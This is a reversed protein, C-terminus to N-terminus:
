GEVWLSAFFTEDHPDDPDEPFITLGLRLRQGKSPTPGRFTRSPSHILVDYAGPVLLPTEPEVKEIKMHVAFKADAGVMLVTAGPQKDTIVVDVRVEVPEPSSRDASAEDGGLGELPDPQAVPVPPEPPAPTSVEPEARAVPEQPPPAESRRTCALALM